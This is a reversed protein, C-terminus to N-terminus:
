LGDFAPLSWGCHGCSAPVPFLGTVMWQQSVPSGERPNPPEGRLWGRGEGASRHKFVGPLQLTGLTLLMKVWRQAVEVPKPIGAFFSAFGAGCCSLTVMSSWFGLLM